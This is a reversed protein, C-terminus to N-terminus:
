RPQRFVSLDMASVSPTTADWMTYAITQGDPSVTLDPPGSRGPKSPYTFLKKVAKTAVNVLYVAPDVDSRWAEAVVLEKAGPLITLTATGPAAMFPLEITTRASGDARCLDIVNLGTSGAPGSSHRVALWQHDASLIPLAMLETDPLIVREPKDGAISVLRFDRSAVRAVLATSADIATAYGPQDGVIVAGIPSNQGTVDVLRFSMKRGPGNGGQDTVILHQSDAQWFVAGAVSQRMDALPVVRDTALEVAVLRQPQNPPTGSYSIMHQDPSWMIGTVYTEALTIAHRQSGDANLVRLECPTAGSCRIAALMKGDPSWAPAALRDPSDFITRTGGGAIARLGLRRLDGASRILLSATGLWDAVTQNTSLNFGGVPKGNADTVSMRRQNGADGYAILTGDPSLGPLTSRANSVVVTVPGGAVSVRRITAFTKNKDGSSPLPLCSWEPVCPVPPNVGFYLSAGDPSWRIQDISSPVSPVVVQETGGAVPEVVISQGVGTADDRAFAVRKGDPSISPVDGRSASLRRDPGKPLGTEPNLLSAWAFHQNPKDGTKTYVIADRTPAVALDWPSGSAIRGSTKSTRDFMWIEGSSNVYYTRQGDPTLVFHEAGTDPPLVGILESAPPNSQGALSALALLGIAAAVEVVKLRSMSHPCYLHNHDCGAKVSLPDIAGDIVFM